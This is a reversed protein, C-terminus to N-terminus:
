NEKVAEKNDNLDTEYSPQPTAEQHYISLMVYEKLTQQDVQVRHSVHVLDIEIHILM